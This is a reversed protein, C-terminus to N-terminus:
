AFTNVIGERMDLVNAKDLPKDTSNDADLIGAGNALHHSHQDGQEQHQFSEAGVMVDGLQIGNEAMLERLRPLAAEIAERVALHPSVFQASALTGNDQTLNLMVEVPGLHAPNLRLEAVQHQQHALWVIKQAFEGNWKPQGIQIDVPIPQSVLSQPTPQTLTQSMTNLGPQQIGDTNIQFLTNPEVTRALFDKQTSASFTQIADNEAFNITQLPNRLKNNEILNQISDALHPPIKGHITTNATQIPHLLMKNEFINQKIEATVPLTKGTNDTHTTLLQQWQQQNVSDNLIGEQQMSPQLSQLTPLQNLWQKTVQNRIHAEPQDQSLTTTVATQLVHPTIETAPKNETFTIPATTSSQQIEPNTSPILFNLPEAADSDITTDPNESYDSDATKNSTDTTSERVKHTSTTPQKEANQPANTTSSETAEKTTENETDLTDKTTPKPKREAVERALVNNFQNNESKSSQNASTLENQNVTLQETQINILLAPSLM